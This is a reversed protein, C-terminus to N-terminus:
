LYIGISFLWVQDTDLMWYLKLNRLTALKSSFHLDLFKIGFYVQFKHKLM